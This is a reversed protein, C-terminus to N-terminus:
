AEASLEACITQMALLKWTLQNCPSSPDCPVCPLNLVQLHGMQQIFLLALRWVLQVWTRCEFRMM